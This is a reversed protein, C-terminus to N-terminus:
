SRCRRHSGQEFIVPSLQPTVFYDDEALAANPKLEALRSKYQASLDSELKAWHEPQKSKDVRKDGSSFSFANATATRMVQCANIRALLLLLERNEGVPEPVIEGNTVTIELSLDRSLRFVSKLICRTLTADQFLDGAEDGLDTRLSALLDSLAV